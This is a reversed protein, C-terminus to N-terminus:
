PTAPPAAALRPGHRALQAEILRLRRQLAAMQEAQAQIIKHQREAQEAQAKIIQHQRQYVALPLAPLLHYKVTEPQGDRRVGRPRALRM